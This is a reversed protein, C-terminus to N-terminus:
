WVLSSDGIGKSYWHDRRLHRAWRDDRETIDHILRRGGHPPPPLPLDPPPPRPARCTWPRIWRTLAAEPPKASPPCLILLLCSWVCNRIKGLLWYEHMTLAVHVPTKMCVTNWIFELILRSMCVMLPPPPSSFWGGPCTLVCSTDRWLAVM